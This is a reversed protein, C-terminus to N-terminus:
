KNFFDLQKNYLIEWLKSKTSQMEITHKVQEEIGQIKDLNTTLHVPERHLVDSSGLPCKVTDPSM